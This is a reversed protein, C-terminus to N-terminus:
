FQNEETRIHQTHNLFNKSYSNATQIKKQPLSAQKPMTNMNTTRIFMDNQSAAHTQKEIVPGSQNIIQNMGIFFNQTQQM